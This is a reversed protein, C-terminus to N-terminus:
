FMLLELILENNLGYRLANFAYLDPRINSATPVACACTDRRISFLPASFPRLLSLRSSLPHASRTTHRGIEYPGYRKYENLVSIDLPKHRTLLSIFGM